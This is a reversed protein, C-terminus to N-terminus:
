RKLGTVIRLVNSALPSFYLLDSGVSIELVNDDRLYISVESKGVQVEIKRSQIFRRKTSPGTEEGTCVNDDVWIKSPTQEDQFENLARIAVDRQCEIDAIKEQAWRPLKAADM